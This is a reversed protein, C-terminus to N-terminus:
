PQCRPRKSRNPKTTSEIPTAAAGQRLVPKCQLCLLWPCHWWAWNPSAGGDGLGRLWAHALHPETGRASCRLAGREARLDPRGVLRAAVHGAWHLFSGPSGPATAIAEPPSTQAAAYGGGGSSCGSGRRRTSCSCSSSGSCGSGSCGGALGGAVRTRGRSGALLIGRGGVGRRRVATERGHSARGRPPQGAAPRARRPLGGVQPSSLARPSSLKLVILGWFHRDVQPLGASNEGAGGVAL